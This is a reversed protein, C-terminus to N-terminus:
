VLITTTRLENSKSEEIERYKGVTMNNIIVNQNSLISNHIISSSKELRESSSETKKDISASDFKSIIKNLTIRRFLNIKQMKFYVKIYLVIMIILPLYFSGISSVVVFSAKHFLVCTYDDTGNIQKFSVNFENNYFMLPGLSIGISILWPIVCYSFAVKINDKNLRYKIPHNTAIYRDIAIM